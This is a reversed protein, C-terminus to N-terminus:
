KVVYGGKRILEQVVPFSEIEDELGIGSKKLILHYIPFGVCMSIIFSFGIVLPNESFFVVVASTIMGFVLSFVLDMEHYIYCKECRNIKISKMEREGGDQMSIVAIFPKENEKNKECYFCSMNM